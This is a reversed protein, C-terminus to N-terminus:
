QPVGGSLSRILAAAEEDTIKPRTATENQRKLGKIVEPWVSVYEGKAPDYVWPLDKTRPNARPPFARADEVNASERGIGRLAYLTRVMEGYDAM